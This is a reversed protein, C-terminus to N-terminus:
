SGRVLKLINIEPPTRFRFPIHSGIGKSVHLYKASTLAVLNQLYKKSYDKYFLYHLGPLKVQGGHLHGSLILNGPYNILQKETKPNHSLVIGFGNKKYKSFAKKPLFDNALVDGLGCLNLVEDKYSVQVSENHLLKVGSNQLLNVLEKSPLLPAEQESLVKGRKINLLKDFVKVMLPPPTEKLLYRKNKCETVYQEYDHNGLCAFKGYPAKLSSLLELTRDKDHLLSYCLIDGTIVIIDPSNESLIKKIKSFFAESQSPMCHLDSLHAIRIKELSVPLNSFPVELHRTKLRSPEIFRPWWGLISVFCWLDWLKDALFYHTKKFLKV